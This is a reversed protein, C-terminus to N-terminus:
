ILTQVFYYTMFGSAVLKLLTGFLFGIFSGIAARSAEESTKGSMLEGILAGVIPGFIIGFPPFIFIGILLGIVSGWVGWRSGGYRKAGIIPVFYDAIFVFITILAWIIMFRISFPTNSTLQLFLLGIYSIPPGPLIPMLCGILGVLIFLSGLVIWLIDM